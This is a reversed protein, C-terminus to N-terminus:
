EKNSQQEIRRKKREQYKSINDFKKKYLKVVHDVFEVRKDKFIENCLKDQVGVISESTDEIFKDESYKLFKLAMKSSSTVFSLILYNEAHFLMSTLNLKDFEQEHVLTSKFTNDALLEVKYVVINASIPPDYLCVAILFVNDELQKTTLSAGPKSLEIKHLEEGKVYDWIRVTQDGSVSVLFKLALFDIASV